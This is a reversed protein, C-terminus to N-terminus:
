QILSVPLSVMCFDSSRPHFVCIRRQSGRSMPSMNTKLYRLNECGLTKGLETINFSNKEVMTTQMLFTDFSVSHFSWILIKIFKSINIQHFISVTKRCFSSHTYTHKLQNLLLMVSRGKSGWSKASLMTRGYTIGSSSPIVSVTMSLLWSLLSVVHVQLCKPEQPHCRVVRCIGYKHLM